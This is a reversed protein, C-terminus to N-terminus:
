RPFIIVRPQPEDIIQNLPRPITDEVESDESETSSLSIQPAPSAVGAESQQLEDQTPPFPAQISISERLARERDRTEEDTSITGEAEDDEDEHHLPLLPPTVIRTQGNAEKKETIVDPAITVSPKPDQQLGPGLRSPESDKDSLSSSTPHDEKQVVSEMEMDQKIRRSRPQEISNKSSSPQCCTVLSLMFSKFFGKKRKVPEITGSEPPSSRHRATRPPNKPPPTPPKEEDHSSIQTNMILRGDKSVPDPSKESINTTEDKTRSKQLSSNRTPLSEPALSERKGIKNLDDSTPLDPLIDLNKGTRSSSSSM